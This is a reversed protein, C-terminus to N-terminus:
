DGGFPILDEISVIGALEGGKTVPTGSLKREKMTAAAQMTDEPEVTIVQRAMAQEVKLEYVLEQTRAAQLTRNVGDDKM